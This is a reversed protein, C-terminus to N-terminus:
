DDIAEQIPFAGTLSMNSWHFRRDFLWLTVYIQRGHWILHFRGPWGWNM